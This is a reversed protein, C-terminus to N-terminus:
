PEELRRQTRAAIKMIKLLQVCVCLSLFKKADRAAETLADEDWYGIDVCLPASCLASRALSVYEHTTVYVIAFIAYVSWDM